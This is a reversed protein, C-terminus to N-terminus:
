KNVIKNFILIILQKIPILVFINKELVLFAYEQQQYLESNPQEQRAAAGQQPPNGGRALASVSLLLGDGLCLLLRPM